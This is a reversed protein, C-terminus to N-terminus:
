KVDGAKWHAKAAAQVEVMQRSRQAQYASQRQAAMRKFDDPSLDHERGFFEDRM